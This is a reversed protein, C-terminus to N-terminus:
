SLRRFLEAGSEIQAGIIPEIVVAGLEVKEGEPNCISHVPLGLISCENVDVVVLDLLIM